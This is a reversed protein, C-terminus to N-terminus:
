WGAAAVAEAEGPDAAPCAEGGGTFSGMAAATDGTEDRGVATELEDRWCGERRELPLPVVGFCGGTVAVWRAARRGPWREAEFGTSLRKSFRPFPATLPRLWPAAAAAAATGPFTLSRLFFNSWDAAWCGAEAVAERFCVTGLVDVRSVAEGLTFPLDDPAPDPAVECPAGLVLAAVRSVARSVSLPEAARDEWRELIAAPSWGAPLECDKALLIDLGRVEAPGVLPCGALAELADLVGAVEGRWFPRKNPSIRGSWLSATVGPNPMSDALGLLVESDLMGLWAGVCILLRESGSISGGDGVSQYRAAAAAVDASALPCRLM